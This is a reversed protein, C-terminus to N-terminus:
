MMIYTKNLLIELQKIIIFLKDYLSQLKICCFLM